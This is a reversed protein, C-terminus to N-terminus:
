KEVNEKALNWARQIFADSVKHRESVIGLFRQFAAREDPKRSTVFQETLIEDFLKRAIELEAGDLTNLMRETLEERGFAADRFEEEIIPSPTRTFEPESQIDITRIESYKLVEKWLVREVTIRDSNTRIWVRLDKSGKSEMLHSYVRDIGKLFDGTSKGVLEVRTIVQLPEYRKLKTKMGDYVIYGFPSEQTSESLQDNEYRYNIMWNQKIRRSPIFAPILCFNPIGLAKELYFHMHGNFVVGFRKCLSAFFEKPPGAIRPLPVSEHMVLVDAKDPVDEIPIDYAGTMYHTDMFRIALDDINAVKTRPYTFKGNLSQELSKLVPQSDHNGRLAFIKCGSDALKNLIERITIMYKEAERHAVRQGSQTRTDFMDGALIVAEPSEKSVKDIAKQFNQLAETAEDRLIGEDEIWEAQYLLHADGLVCIASM